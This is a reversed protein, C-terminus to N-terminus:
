GLESLKQSRWRRVIAELAGIGELFLAPGPQLIITSKVEHLADDKVCSLNAWGKRARVADLKVGKGCWSGIYIEPDVELIDQNEIIRGKALSSHSREVFVDRGGVLDIAESVWRIGSMMPDPWEEFYVRPRTLSINKNRHSEMEREWGDIIEIAESRRGVIAALQILASQIEALTRQNSCWVNLGERILDHAIQAQIDSFGLVLDPKLSKIEDIKADTFVSVKPKERRAEPPRMAFGSIGVIRESEGLLYLWEVTEETLCVIRQPGAQYGMKEVSVSKSVFTRLLGWM